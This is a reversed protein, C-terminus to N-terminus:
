VLRMAVILQTHLEEQIVLFKDNSFQLLVNENDIKKLAQLLYNANFAIKLDNELEMKLCEIYEINQGLEKNDVVIKLGKDKVAIFQVISVGDTKFIQLRDIANILENKNVEIEQTFSEPILRAYSPYVGEVVRSTIILNDNKIKMVRSDKTEVMLEFENNKFHKIENVLRTSLLINEKTNLASKAIGLRFSDTAAITGNENDLYIENLVARTDNNGVAHIVKDVANLFSETNIKVSDNTTFDYKPFNDKEMLPLTYKLKKQKIILKNKDLALEILDENLKKVIDFLMKLETIFEFVPSVMFDIIKENKMALEGDSAIVTAKTDNFKVLVGKQIPLVSKQVNLRNLPTLIELLINKNIKIM